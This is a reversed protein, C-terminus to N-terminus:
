DLIVKFQKKTDFFIFGINTLYKLTFASIIIMFAILLINILLIPTLGMMSFRGLIYFQHVIYVEFSYKDSFNLLKSQQLNINKCIWYIVFFISVGLLMHSYDFFLNGLEMGEVKKIYRIYIVIANTVIALLTFIITIYSIKLKDNKDKYNLNFYRRSIFYGIIYCLLNPININIVGIISIFQILAIILLFVSWFRIESKDKLINEYLSQLIPTILYCVMIFSIFWLHELGVIGGIFHQVCLINKLTQKISFLERAFILYVVSIIIIYIYYTSLIKKFRKKIWDHWNYIEKQGYLFGSIIFFIQVGVNFWWALENNLYQMIHCTVIMLMAIFRIFSISEDKIYTKVM